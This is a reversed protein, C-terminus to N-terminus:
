NDSSTDPDDSDTSYRGTLLYYIKAGFVGIYGLLILVFIAAWGAEVGSDFSVLGNQQLFWIIAGALGLLLALGWLRLNKWATAFLISFGILYIIGVLLKTSSLTTSSLFVDRVASWMGSMPHMFSIIIFPVGILKLWFIFRDTFSPVQM